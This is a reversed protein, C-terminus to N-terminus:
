ECDPKLRVGRNPTFVLYKMVRLMVKKVEVTGEAMHRTLDWTSGSVCVRSWQMHHLLKSDTQPLFIYIKINENKHRLQHTM